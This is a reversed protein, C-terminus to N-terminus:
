AENEDLCISVFCERNIRMSVMLIIRSASRKGDPLTYNYTLL